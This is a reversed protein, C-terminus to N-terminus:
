VEMEGLRQGGNLGKGGLPQQTIRSYSPGAARAHIKDDIMHDLKLLYM